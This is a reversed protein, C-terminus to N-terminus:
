LVVEFSEWPSPFYVHHTYTNWAKSPAIFTSIRSGLHLVLNFPPINVAIFSDHLPQLNCFLYNVTCGKCWMKVYFVAKIYPLSLQLTLLIYWLFLIKRLLFFGLFAPTLTSINGGVWEGGELTTVLFKWTTSSQKYQLYHNQIPIPLATQTKQLTFIGWVSCIIYSANKPLISYFCAVSVDQSLIYINCSQVTQGGDKPFHHIWHHLILWRWIHKVM